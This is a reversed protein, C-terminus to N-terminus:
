RVAVGEQEASRSCGAEAIGVEGNEVALLSCVVSGLLPVHHVSRFTFARGNQGVEATFLLLSVPIAEM